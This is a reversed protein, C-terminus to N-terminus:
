SEVQRKKQRSVWGAKVKGPLKSAGIALPMRGESHPWTSHLLGGLVGGGNRAFLELQSWSRAIRSIVLLLGRRERAVHSIMLGWPVSVRPAQGLFGRTESTACAMESDWNRLAVAVPLFFINCILSCQCAGFCWFVFPSRRLCGGSRGPPSVRSAVSM